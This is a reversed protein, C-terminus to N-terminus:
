LTSQVCKPMRKNVMLMRKEIESEQLVVDSDLLEDLITPKQVFPQTDRHLEAVIDPVSSGAAIDKAETDEPPDDSAEEGAAEEPANVAAVDAGDANVDVDAVTIPLM